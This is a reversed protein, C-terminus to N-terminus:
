ASLITTLITVAEEVIDNIYDESCLYLEKITEAVRCLVSVDGIKPLEDSVADGPQMPGTRINIAPFNNGLVKQINTKAELIGESYRRRTM